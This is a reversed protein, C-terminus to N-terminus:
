TENSRGDNHVTERYGQAYCSANQLYIVKRDNVDYRQVIDLCNHSLWNQREDFGPFLCSIHMRLNELVASAFSHGKCNTRGGSHEDVGWYNDNQSEYNLDNVRKLSQSGEGDM